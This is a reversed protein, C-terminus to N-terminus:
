NLNDKTQLFIIQAVGFLSIKSIRSSENYVLTSIKPRARYAFRLLDVYSEINSLKTVM